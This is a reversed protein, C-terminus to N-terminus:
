PTYVCFRHWRAAEAGIRSDDRPLPTSYALPPDLPQASTSLVSPQAPPSSSSDFGACAGSVPLHDIRLAM